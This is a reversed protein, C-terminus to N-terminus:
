GDARNSLLVRERNPQTECSEKRPVSETILTHLRPLLNVMSATVSTPTDTGPLPQEIMHLGAMSSNQQANRTTTDRPLM